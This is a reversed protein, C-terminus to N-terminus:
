DVTGKFLYTVATGVHHTVVEYTIETLKADAGHNGKVQEIFREEALAVLSPKDPKFSATEVIVKGTVHQQKRAVPAAKPAQKDAATEAM